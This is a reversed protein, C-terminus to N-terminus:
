AVDRAADWASSFSTIRKGDSSFSTDLSGNAEYRSIAFNGGSAAARSSGVVVIKGDAQIAVDAGWDEDSGFDTTLQGDGSFTTDLDGPAAAASSAGVLVGASILLAPLARRGLM